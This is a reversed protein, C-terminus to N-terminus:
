KESRPHEVSQNEEPTERYRRLSHLLAKPYVPPLPFSIENQPGLLLLTTPERSAEEFWGASLDIFANEYYFGKRIYSTYPTVSHRLGFTDIASTFEGWRDARMSVFLIYRDSTNEDALDAVAILTTKVTANGEGFRVQQQLSHQTITVASGADNLTIDTHRLLYEETMPVPVAEPVPKKACGTMLAVLLLPFLLFFSRIM